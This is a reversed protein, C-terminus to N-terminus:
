IETEFFNIIKESGDLITRKVSIFEDSLGYEWKVLTIGGNEIELCSIGNPHVCSGDNFYLSQGKKPFLPRHTHGAILIKNNKKSWKELKKEVRNKVIYNKAASTPDKIGFNELHRWVHRVLFRNVKWFANNMLDVQHGHIMFIDNNNYNLVLSEYVELNNLLDEKAKKKRDYYSYFIEKLIDKSKKCMDHNGYIMILRDNNYFKKLLKFSNIHENVIDKFNKVEWMDDGDGLEIYTFGNKFYYNLAANYINQNKLFNDHNNGVGRHCDSMIVIKSNDNIKLKKSTIFIKDLKKSM